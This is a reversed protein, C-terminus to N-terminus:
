GLRRKVTFKGDVPGDPTDAWFRGSIVKGTRELKVSGRTAAVWPLTDGMWSRVTSVKPLADIKCDKGVTYTRPEPRAPLSIRVGAQDDPLWDFLADEEAILEVQVWDTSPVRERVRSKEVDLRDGDVIVYGKDTCGAATAALLLAALLWPTNRAHSM